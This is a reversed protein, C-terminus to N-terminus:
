LSKKIAPNYENDIIKIDTPQNKQKSTITGSEDKIKGSEKTENKKNNKNNEDNEEDDSIESSDIKSNSAESVAELVTELHNQYLNNLGLTFSTRNFNENGHSTRSKQLNNDNNPNDNLNNIYSNIIPNSNYTSSKTYM